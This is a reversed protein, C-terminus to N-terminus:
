ASEVVEEDRAQKEMEEHRTRRWYDTFSEDQRGKGKGKPVRNM